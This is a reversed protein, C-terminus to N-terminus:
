VPANQKKDVPMKRHLAFRADTTIEGRDLANRLITRVEVRKHHDKYHTIALKEYVASAHIGEGETSLCGLVQEKTIMNKEGITVEDIDLNSM